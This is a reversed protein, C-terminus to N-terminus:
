MSTYLGSSSIPSITSIFTFYFRISARKKTCHPQLKAANFIFIIYIQVRFSTGFINSNKTKMNNMYTPTFIERFPAPAPWLKRLRLYNRDWGEESSHKNHFNLWKLFSIIYHFLLWLGCLFSLFIPFFTDSLFFIKIVCFMPFDFKICLYEILIFVKFQCFLTDCSISDM